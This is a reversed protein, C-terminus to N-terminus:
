VLENTKAPQYFLGEQRLISPNGHPCVGDPEVVSGCTCAAPCGLIKGFLIERQLHTLGVRNPRYGANELAKQTPLNKHETEM